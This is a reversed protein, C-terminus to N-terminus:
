LKERLEQSCLKRETDRLPVFVYVNSQVVAEKLTQLMSM